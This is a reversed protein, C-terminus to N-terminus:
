HASSVHSGCEPPPHLEHRSIFNVIFSRYPMAGIERKLIHSAVRMRMSAPAADATKNALATLAENGLVNLTAQAALERRREADSSAQKQAEASEIAAVRIALADRTRRITVIAEIRGQLQTAFQVTPDAAIDQLEALGIGNQACIREVLACKKRDRLPDDGARRSVFRDLVVWLSGDSKDAGVASEERRKDVETEKAV